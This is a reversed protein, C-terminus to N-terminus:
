QLNLTNLMEFTRVTVEEGSTFIDDKRNDRVIKCFRDADSQHFYYFDEKKTHCGMLIDDIFEMEFALISSIGQLQGLRIQYKAYIDGFFEVNGDLRGHKFQAFIRYGNDKDRGKITGTFPQNKYIVCDSSFRVYQDPLNIIKLTNRKSCGAMILIMITFLCVPRLWKYQYTM